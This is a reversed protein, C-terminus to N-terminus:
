CHHEPTSGRSPAAPATYTKPRPHVSPDGSSPQVFERGPLTQQLKRAVMHVAVPCPSERRGRGGVSPKQGPNRRRPKTPLVRRSVSAPIRHCVGSVHKGVSRTPCKPPTRPPGDPVKHCYGPLIRNGFHSARGRSGGLQSPRRSKSGFAACSSVDEHPVLRFANVVTSM